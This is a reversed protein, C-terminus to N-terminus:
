VTWPESELADASAAARLLDALDFDPRHTLHHEDLWTLSEPWAPLSQGARGEPLRVVWGNEGFEIVTEAV